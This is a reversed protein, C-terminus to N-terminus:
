EDVDMDTKMRLYMNTKIKHLTGDQSFNVNLLKIATKDCLISMTDDEELKAANDKKWKMFVRHIKLHVKNLFKCMNEKSCEVWRVHENEYIYFTNNAAFLPSRHEKTYITRFFIKDLTDAFSYKFLHQIDEQEIAITDVLYQFACSPTIKDNLWQIVDVKKNKKVVLKDMENLREELKRYKHGLELLLQYMKKQSPLCDEDVEENSSHSSKQIFECLFSHKELNTKKMYSKGCYRCSHVSSM